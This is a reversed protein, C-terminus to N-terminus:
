KWSKGSLELDVMRGLGILAHNDDKEGYIIMNDIDQDSHNYIGNEIINKKLAELYYTCNLAFGGIIIYKEVYLALVLLCIADALPKTCYNVVAMCFPDGSNALGAILEPNIKETDGNVARALDSHPFLHHYRGNEQAFLKAINSAGRGSSVVGLHNIGRGCSCPISIDSLNARYHGIEGELGHAGILVKGNSFVKNGVGSSVTILCFSNHKCSYRWASATMDNTIFIKTDSVLNKKLKTKLDFVGNFLNGFTVPGSMIMGESNVPGPFSIALCSVEESQLVRNYSETIMRILEREIEDQSNFKFHNPASMKEIVTLNNERYIGCRYNTGGIDIVCYPKKSVSM